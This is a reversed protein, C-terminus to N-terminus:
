LNHAVPDLGLRGANRPQGLDALLFPYRHPLLQMIAEVDLPGDVPRGSRKAAPPVTEAAQALLRRVLAHNTQHGSRHAVVKGHLDFGLLALDGVLDLVKHRACEDPYRLTNGLIGERGFILLDAPSARRGVGAARLADAESDLLFTRSSAIEARFSEASLDLSFSQAPITADSGYDLHYSLTLGSPDPHATLVAGRDRVSVAEELVIALRARDQDVIGARDLAEVFLRSSGDGGPCEGADIEILCNDIQLGALAAMVHEIMEVSAAGRRICTRREAPVIAEARAPVTPKGPLDSRAFVIGTGPDAPHFRIMVDAGHFFGVGRVEAARVITREPRTARKM